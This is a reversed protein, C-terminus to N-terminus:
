IKYGQAESGQNYSTSRGFLVERLIVISNGKTCVAVVFKLPKLGEKRQFYELIGKKLPSYRFIKIIENMKKITTSFCQIPKFNKEERMMEDSNYDDEESQSDDDQGSDIAGKSQLQFLTDM